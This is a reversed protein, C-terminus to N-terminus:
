HEQVRREKAHRLRNREKVATGPNIEEFWTNSSGGTGGMSIDAGSDASYKRGRSDYVNQSDDFLTQAENGVNKVRLYVVLYRGKATETFYGSGVTKAYEVKRVKFQFKGDRVKDGFGAAGQSEKDAAPSTIISTPEHEGGDGTGSGSSGRDAANTTASDAAAFVATTMVISVVFAALGLATGSVSVGKGARGNFAFAMGIGGFIM